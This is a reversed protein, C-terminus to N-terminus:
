YIPSSHVIKNSNKPHPHPDQHAFIPGSLRSPTVTSIPPEPYTSSTLTVKNAQYLQQRPLKSGGDALRPRAM